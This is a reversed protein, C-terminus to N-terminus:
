KVKLKHARMSTRWCAEAGGYCEACVAVGLACSSRQQRYYTGLYQKIVVIKPGGRVHMMGATPAM